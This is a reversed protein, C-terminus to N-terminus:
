FRWRLHGYSYNGAITTFLKKHIASNKATRHWRQSRATESEAMADFFLNNFACYLCTWSLSSRRRHQHYLKKQLVTIMLSRVVGWVNIESIKSGNQLGIHFFRADSATIPSRKAEKQKEQVVRYVKVQVHGYLQVHRAIMKPVVYLHLDELRSLTM